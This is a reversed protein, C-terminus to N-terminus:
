QGVGRRYVQDCKPCPTNKVRLEDGLEGVVLELHRISESLRALVVRTDIDLTIVMPNATDGLGSEESQHVVAM